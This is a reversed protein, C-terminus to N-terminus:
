LNLHDEIVTVRKTQSELKDKIQAVDESVDALQQTLGDLKKSHEELTDKIPKLEYRILTRIQNLDEDTM